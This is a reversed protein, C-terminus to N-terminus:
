KEEESAASAKNESVIEEEVFGKEAGVKVWKLKKADRGLDANRRCKSSCYHIARGEFTYVTLGRPEKYHRRCFSCVPM